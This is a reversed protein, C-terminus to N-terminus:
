LNSSIQDVFTAIPMSYPESSWRQLVEENSPNILIIAPQAMVKYKELLKKIDKSVHTCDVKHLVILDNTNNIFEENKLYKQM